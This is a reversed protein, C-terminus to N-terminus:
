GLAQVGAPGLNLLNMELRYLRPLGSKIIDGLTLMDDVTLNVRLWSLSTADRVSTGYEIEHEDHGWCLVGFLPFLFFYSSKM